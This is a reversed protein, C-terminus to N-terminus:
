EEEPEEEEEKGERERRSSGVMVMRSGRGEVVGQMIAWVLRHWNVPGVVVVIDRPQLSRVSGEYIHVLRVRHPLLHVPVGHLFCGNCDVIWVRIRDDRSRLEKRFPIAALRAFRIVSVWRFTRLQNIRWGVELNRWHLNVRPVPVSTVAFREFGPRLGRLRSCRSARSVRAM